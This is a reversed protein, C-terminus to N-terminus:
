VEWFINGGISWGVILRHVCSIGVFDFRFNRLTIGSFAAGGDMIQRSGLPRRDFFMIPMATNVTATLHLAQRLVVSIGKQPSVSKLRCPFSPNARLALERKAYALAGQQLCLGKCPYCYVLYLKGLIDARELVPERPEQDYPGPYFKYRLRRVMRPEANDDPQNLMDSARCWAVCILHRKARSSSGHESKTPFSAEQALLLYPTCCLSGRLANLAL